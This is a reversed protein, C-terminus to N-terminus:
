SENSELSTYAQLIFSVNLDVNKEENFNIDKKRGGGFRKDVGRSSEIESRSMIIESVEVARYYTIIDAFFNLYNEFKGKSDINISTRLVKGPAINSTKERSLKMKMRENIELGSITIPVAEKPLFNILEIQNKEALNELDKILFGRQETKPVQYMLIKIEKKLAEIHSELEEIDKESVQPSKIIAKLTKIESNLQNQREFSPKIWIFFLFVVLLLALGALVNKERDQLNFEM